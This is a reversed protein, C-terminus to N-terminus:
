VSLEVLGEAPSQPSCFSGPPVGHKTLFRFRDIATVCKALNASSKGHHAEGAHDPFGNCLRLDAIGCAGPHDLVRVELRLGLVDDEEEHVAAQRMDVAEIRLRHERLVVTLRHRSSVESVLALGAREHLRREFEFAVSLASNFDALEKGVNALADVVDADHPRDEGLNRVVLGREDHHVSSRVYGSAGGHPGPQCVAEARVVLIEGAEDNEARLDGRCDPRRKPAGAKERWDILRGVDGCVGALLVEVRVFEDGVDMVIVEIDLLLPMLQIQDLLEILQVHGFRLSVSAGSTKSTRLSLSAVMLIYPSPLVARLQRVAARRM